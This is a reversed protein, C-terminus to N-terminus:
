MLFCVVLLGVWGFEGCAGYKSVKIVHMTLRGVMVSSLCSIASWGCVANGWCEGIVKEGSVECTSLDVNVHPRDYHSRRPDDEVSSTRVRSLCSCLAGGCYLTTCSQAAAQWSNTGACTVVIRAAVIGMAWTLTSRHVLLTDPSFNLPSHQLFSLMCFRWAPM